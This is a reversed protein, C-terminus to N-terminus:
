IMETSNDDNSRDVGSEGIQKLLVLVLGRWALRLKALGGSEQDM